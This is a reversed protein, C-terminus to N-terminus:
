PFQGRRPSFGHVGIAFVHTTVFAYGDGPDNQAPLWIGYEAFMGVGTHASLEFGANLQVLGDGVYTRSALSEGPALQVDPPPREIWHDAFTVGVYPEFGATVRYSAIGGALAM